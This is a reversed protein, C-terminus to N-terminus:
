GRASSELVRVAQEAFHLASGLGGFPYFGSLLGVRGRRVSPLSRWLANGAVTRAFGGSATALDICLIMAEPERALADLGVTVTGVGSFPGPHANRLGLRELVGGILGSGGYLTINRGTRAILGVYAPLPGAADVRQRLAAIRQEAEAVVLRAQAERQLVSGLRRLTGTAFDWGGTGQPYAPVREVPAIRALKAGDIVSWADVLVLDPRLAFLRELNPEWFPGLDPVAEPLRPSVMRERYYGADAVGVPTVGLALANEAGLWAISAM